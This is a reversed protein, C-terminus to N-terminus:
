SRDGPDERDTVLLYLLLVVLGAESVIALFEVPGAFLHDVLYTLLPGRHETAPGVFLLARHGSVHWGFYGVIYVLMLGIGGLYLPRKARGRAVAVMGGLIALGSVVFLPWRADPPILLGVSAYRIWNFLGLTLHVMAAVLALHAAVVQAIWRSDLAM